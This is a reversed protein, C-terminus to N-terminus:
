SVYISKLYDLLTKPFRQFKVSFYWGYWFSQHLCKTSNISWINCLKSSQSFDVCCSISPFKKYFFFKLVHSYFRENSFIKPLYKRLLFKQIDAATDVLATGFNFINLNIKSTKLEIFIYNVFTTLFIDM